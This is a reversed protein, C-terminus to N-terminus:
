RRRGRLWQPIGQTDRLTLTETGKKIERAIITESGAIETKADTVEVQDGKDFNFGKKKLYSAPGLHVDIARDDMKVTLHTGNWGQRGTVTKVEEVVGKITTETGPNYMRTRQGGGQAPLFTTCFTIAMLLSVIRTKMALDEM